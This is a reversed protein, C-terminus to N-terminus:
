VKIVLGLHTNVLFAIYQSILLSIQSSLEWLNLQKLGLFIAAEFWGTKDGIESVVTACLCLNLECNGSLM